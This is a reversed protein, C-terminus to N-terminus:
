KAKRIGRSYEVYKYILNELWEIVAENDHMQVVDDYIAGGQFFMGLM